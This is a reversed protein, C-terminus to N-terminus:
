LRHLILTKGERKLPKSSHKSIAEALEQAFTEADAGGQSPHLELTGM